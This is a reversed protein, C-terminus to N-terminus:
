SSESLEWPSIYNNCRGDTSREMDAVNDHVRDKKQFRGFYRADSKSVHFSVTGQDALERLLMEQTGECGRVGLM